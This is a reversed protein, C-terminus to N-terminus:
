AVDSEGTAFYTSFGDDVWTVIAKLSKALPTTTVRFEFVFDGSYVDSNAISEADLAAEGYILAGMAKLADLRNQEEAVISAIDNATMPQDVDRPRRAQFDNSVYYLMMRSTEAVNVSDANLQSYDASHAGWIAWRGGVFAASAIGNKNLKENIIEDDFLKNVSGEGLWLKGIIPADTNSASHYPIGENEGLLELFNAAAIVSLHYKKGDTGEIMPFYVTENVHNYGHSNKWTVVTDMTLPTTNDVLPLDAFLWMDWHGNVKQSNQYMAAHVAPVSSFGPAIMYAPIVGTLQYVNKVAFIGTNTGLGDSEGIVDDNDVKEPDIVNYTVTLASTGLDTIGTITITKKAASYALSYDTGKAKVVPSGGQTAVQVSEMIINEADAITIINNTPTKSVSTVQKKQYTVTLASTGLAGSTKETIVVTNNDGNVAVTYDTDLVKTGVTISDVTILNADSLTIVGESPTKSETAVPSKFHKAPDLVNILVLPGIGKTEFFHHMAECLTYSAWDDSYGFQKKAEAINRVLVPKNVPYSGGSALGLTHVPATGICVIASETDVSVRNGNAQSDGYAGHLYESM